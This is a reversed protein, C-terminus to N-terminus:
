VVNGENNERQHRIAQRGKTPETTQQNNTAAYIINCATTSSQGTIFPSVKKVNSKLGEIV